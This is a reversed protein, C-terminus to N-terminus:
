PPTMQMTSVLNNINRGAIKIGAQAEDLGANQMIYEAYLNFLCPSLVCPIVSTSITPHCWRSLPCSNSYYGPTPSPCPPRAHQLGHPWLSDSVFSHSFQVLSFVSFGKVVHILVFQPFNKFLHSDWAEKGAEQSVQICASFYFNSNSMSCRVPELNPFSYVM